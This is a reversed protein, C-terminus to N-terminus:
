IRAYVLEFLIEALVAGLSVFLGTLMAPLSISTFRVIVYAMGGLILYRSGFLVAHRTSPKSPLPGLSDAVRKLWRFNVWAIASGLAFGTGAQWGRWGLAALTGAAALIALFRLIRRIARRYF